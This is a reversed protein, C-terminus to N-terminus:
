GADNQEKLLAKKRRNKKDAIRRQKRNCPQGEEAFRKRLEEDSPTEIKYLLKDQVMEM